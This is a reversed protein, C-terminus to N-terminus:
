TFASAALKVAACLWHAATWSANISSARCPNAVTSGRCTSCNTAWAVGAPAVLGAAAEWTPQMREVLLAAAHM